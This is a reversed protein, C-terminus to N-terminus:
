KKKADKADKAPAAAKADKAGAAPAAAAATAAAAAPAATEEAREKEPAVVAILTQEAPLLVEVGEPLKLDQTAIHENLKLHSVDVELKLPIRDPLSRVAVTRFVQRLVGGLTVGVAKGTPFLPVDVDVTRDLKVEVFDVHLLSRTLPHYTYDKIMVLLQRADGVKMDVVSNRGRESSLVALVDKPAISLALTNMGKGYAVAPIQGGKRVRRAAGKGGAVRASAQITFMAATM